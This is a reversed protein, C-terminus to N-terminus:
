RVVRGAAIGAVAGAVVTIGGGVPVSNYGLPPFFIGVTMMVTCVLVGVFMGVMVAKVWGRETGTCVGLMAGVILGTPIGVALGTAAGTFVAFLPGLSEASPDEITLALCVDFAM